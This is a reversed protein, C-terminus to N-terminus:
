VEREWSWVIAQWPRKAQWPRICPHGWQQQKIETVRLSHLSFQHGRWKQTNWAEFAQLIVSGLETALNPHIRAQKIWMLLRDIRHNELLLVGRRFKGKWLNFAYSPTTKGQFYEKWQKLHLDRSRSWHMGQGWCWYKQHEKKIWLIYEANREAKNAKKM